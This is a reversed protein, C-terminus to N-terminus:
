KSFDGDCFYALDDFNAPFPIKLTKYFSMACTQVEIENSLISAGNMWKDKMPSKKLAPILEHTKTWFEARGQGRSWHRTSQIYDRFELYVNNRMLYKGKFFVEKPNESFLENWFQAVAGETKLKMDVGTLDDEPLKFPNFQSIDKSMLYDFVNEALNGKELAAWAKAFFDHKGCYESSTEFVIYRRNTREIAVAEKNNSAIIYRSFNEVTYRGGFKEEVTMKDSGTLSKLIGDEVLDGRWTAEDIFTLFKCAQDTNFREKLTQATMIKYFYDKLITAMIGECLLGKGTGQDGILVPVVSPKEDPKQVLHALFNILWEGKSVSGGAMANVCLEQFLSVDGKIRECPIPAWLNLEHDLAHPKFVIRSYCSRRSDMLWIQTVDNFKTKWGSREGWHYTKYAYPKFITKLDENPLISAAKIGNKSTTVKVVRGAPKEDLVGVGQANMWKILFDKHVTVIRGDEETFWEPNEEAELEILQEKTEAFRKKDEQLLPNPIPIDMSRALFLFSRDTLGDERDSSFSEWKTACLELDGEKFSPGQSIFKFLELGDNDPFRSHIAMGIKLWEDYDLAKEKMLAGIQRYYELGHSLRTLPAETGKKVKEILKLLWEPLEAVSEYNEWIYQNGNAHTSPYVVIYNRFRVDIGIGKQLKGKFKHTSNSKFVYHLGGSGTRAKLTSPEGNHAILAEWTEMGFDKLDVDIVVHSSKNPLIAWNCNPYNKAWAMVIEINASALNPYDDFVPKKTKAYCPVLYFGKDCYDKLVERLPKSDIDNM